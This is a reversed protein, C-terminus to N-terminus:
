RKKWSWHFDHHGFSIAFYRYKFSVDVAFLKADEPFETHTFRM